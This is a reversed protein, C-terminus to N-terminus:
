RRRAPSRRPLAGPRDLAGAYVSLLSLRHGLVDHIERALAERAHHQAQEALLRAEAGARAVLQRHHHIVLGLRHRRGSIRGRAASMAVLAVLAVAEEV